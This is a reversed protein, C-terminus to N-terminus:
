PRLPRPDTVTVVIPGGGTAHVHMWSAGADDSRLLGSNDMGVYLSGGHALMSHPYDNGPFIPLQSWTAGGDGTRFLGRGTFAFLDPGIAELHWLWTGLGDDLPLDAATRSWTSGGDDSSYVAHRWTAAYLRAGKPVITVFNENVPETMATWTVGGDDSRFNADETVVAVHAGDTAISYVYLGAPGSTALDWSAGLDTSRALGKFSGAALLTTGSVALRDIVRPAGPLTRWTLGADDSIAFADNTSVFVHEGISALAGPFGPHVLSWSLGGDVSRVVGITVAALVASDTTAFSLIAEGQPTGPPPPHPVPETVRPRDVRSTDCGSAAFLLAALVAARVWPNCPSM